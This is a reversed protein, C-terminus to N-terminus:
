FYKNIQSDRTKTEAYLIKTAQHPISGPGGTNPAWLRLGQIAPSTGQSWKQAWILKGTGRHHDDQKQIGIRVPAYIAKM